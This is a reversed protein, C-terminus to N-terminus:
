LAWSAGVVLGYRPVINGDNVYQYVPLQLHTYVSTSTSLQLRLGPTVYVWHGGTSPVEEGRYEDRPASRSNLQLSSVIRKGHLSTSYEVGANLILTDGFQYDLDNKSTLQYSGSAFWLLHREIDLRQYYASLLGDWSGTGPMISPENIEGESNLLKYEGSPTKVGAGLVLLSSEGAFVARRLSLRVDGMGTYDDLLFEESAGNLHYHEHRRNNVLPLALNLTWKESLGYNVDLQILENNTRHERHHAPEITQNEFDIAPTIAEDIDDSGRQADDMPIFRYSLDLMMQGPRMVGEQTGTVLFCNASGCSAWIQAPYLTVSLVATMLTARLPVNM